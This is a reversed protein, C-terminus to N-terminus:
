VAERPHRYVEGENELILTLDRVLDKDVEKALNKDVKSITREPNSVAEKMETTPSVGFLKGYEILKDVFPEAAGFGAMLNGESDFSLCDDFIFEFISADRWEYEDDKAVLQNDNVDVVIDDMKQKYFFKDLFNAIEDLKESSVAEMLDYGPDMASDGSLVAQKRTYVFKPSDDEGKTYGDYFSNFEDSCFGPNLKDVINDCTLSANQHEMLDWFIQCNTVEWWCNDPFNRELVAQLAIEVRKFKAIDPLGRAGLIAQMAADKLEKRLEEKCSLEVSETLVDSYRRKFAENMIHLSM